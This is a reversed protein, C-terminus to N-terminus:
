GTTKVEAIFRAVTKRKSKLYLHSGKIEHKMPGTLVKLFESEVDMKGECFMRTSALTASITKGETKYSGTFSNCGAFGTARHDVKQYHVSIAKKEVSSIDKGHLEVLLWTTGELPQENIVGVLEGIQNSPRCAVLMLIFFCIIRM